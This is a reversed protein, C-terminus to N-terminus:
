MFQSELYSFLCKSGSRKVIFPLLFTLHSASFLGHVFFYEKSDHNIIKNVMELGKHCGLNILRHIKVCAVSLNRISSQVDQSTFYQNWKCLRWSVNILVSNAFLIKQIPSVELWSLWKTEDKLTGHVCQCRIQSM